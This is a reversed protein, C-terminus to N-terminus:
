GADAHEVVRRNASKAKRRTSVANTKRAASAAPDGLPRRTHIRLNRRWQSGDSATREQDCVVPMLHSASVPWSARLVQIGNGFRHRVVAMQRAAYRQTPKGLVWYAFWELERRAADYRLAPEETIHGARPYSILETPARDFHKLSQFLITADQMASEAGFELLSPTAAHAAQYIPSLNELREREGATFPSGLGFQRNVERTTTSGIGFLVDRAPDLKVAEHILVAKFRDTHTLAYAALYGGWSHGALAVRASDTVGAKVFCTLELSIMKSHGRDAIGSLKGHMNLIPATAEAAGRIRFSYRLERALSSHTSPIGWVSTTDRALWPLDVKPM